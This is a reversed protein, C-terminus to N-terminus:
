RPLHGSLVRVASGRLRVQSIAGGAVDFGLELLSPRGMEVGQRLVVRHTGEEAYPAVYRHLSGAFAVTASGTAPDEPVGAGEAFMRARWRGGVQDADPDPTALYIGVVGDATGAPRSRALAALDRVVAVVFATGGADAVHIPVAPDVDDPDLGVLAALQVTDVPSPSLRPLQPAVLEASRAGRGATVEVPTLGAGLELVLSAGDGDSSEVLAVATGVTPHGAFPLERTPTFIRVRHTAGPQTPPLVFTTESLNLERAIQAMQGDTLGDADLVVALANGTFPRDTFVDYWVFSRPAPPV